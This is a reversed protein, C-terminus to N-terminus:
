MDVSLMRHMSSGGSAFFDPSGTPLSPAFGTSPPSALVLGLSTVRALAPLHAAFPSLGAASFLLRHDDPAAPRIVM